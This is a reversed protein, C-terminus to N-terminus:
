KVRSWTGGSRCIGLVCGNVNLRNGSLELRSNYTRDRDPTYVKGGSYLGPSEQVMDWIIRRGNNESTIAEGASDFSRVLTGCFKAGCPAIRVHGYNGNDDKITQWTGVLPDAAQAASPAVAAFVTATLALVAARLTATATFQTPQM